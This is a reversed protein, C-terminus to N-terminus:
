VWTSERDLGGVDDGCVLALEAEAEAEKLRAPVDAKM